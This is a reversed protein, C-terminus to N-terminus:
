QFWNGRHIGIDVLGPYPYQGTPGGSYPESPTGGFWWASSGPFLSTGDALRGNELEELTIATSSANTLVNSGAVDEVYYLNETSSLPTGSVTQLVGYKAPSSLEEMEVVSYCDYYREDNDGKITGLIGGATEATGKIVGAAYCNYITTGYENRGLLMGVNRTNVEFQGINAYCNNILVQTSGTNRQINSTGVLGGVATNLNGGTYTFSMKPISVSCERLNSNYMNGILGGIHQGGTIKIEGEAGFVHCDIVKAARLERVLCGVYGDPGSSSLNMTIKPSEIRVRRIEFNFPINGNMDIGGFWSFLPRTLGLIRWGGGDYSVMNDFKSDQHTRGSYLAGWASGQRFDIDDVQTVCFGRAQVGDMITTLDFWHSSGTNWPELVALNEMHRGSSINVNVRTVGGVNVKTMAAFLSNTVQTSPNSKLYIVGGYDRGGNIELTATIRINSGARINGGVVADFSKGGAPQYLKDLIKTCTQSTSNGGDFGVGWQSTWEVFNSRTDGPPSYTGEVRLTVKIDNSSLGPPLTPLTLKVLLEEGNEIEMKVQPLQKVSAAFSGGGEYYGVRQSRRDQAKERWDTLMGETVKSGFGDESYFVEQLLGHKKDFVVVYKGGGPVTQSIAWGPLIHEMVAPAEKDDAFVLMETGVAINNHQLELSTSVDSQLTGAVRMAVLRNQAVLYVQKANNDLKAMEMNILLTNLSPLAAAMVIAVIAVVIVIETLTFGGQWRRVRRKESM